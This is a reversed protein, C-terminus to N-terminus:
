CKCIAFLIAVDDINSGTIRSTVVQIYLMPCVILICVRGVEQKGFSQCNLHYRAVDRRSAISDEFGTM